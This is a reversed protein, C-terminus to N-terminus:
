VAFFMCSEYDDDEDSFQESDEYFDSKHTEDHLNDQPIVVRPTDGIHHVSKLPTKLPLAMRTTFLHLPVLRSSGRHKNNLLKGAIVQNLQFSESSTIGAVEIGAITQKLETALPLPLDGSQLLIHRLHPMRLVMYGVVFNKKVSCM